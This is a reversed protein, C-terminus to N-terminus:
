DLVRTPRGCSRESRVVHSGSPESDDSEEGAPSHALDIFRLIKFKVLANRELCNSEFNRMVFM